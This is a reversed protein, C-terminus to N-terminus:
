PRAGVPTEGDSGVPPPRRAKAAPRGGFGDGLGLAAFLMETARAESFREAIVKRGAAGLSTLLRDDEFLTIVHAALQEPEDAILGEVGDVLGIGENGVATTVVPVGAALSEIIKGKVGSGFRIPSVSMRAGAYYEALDPVYGSVLV